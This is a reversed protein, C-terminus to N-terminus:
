SVEAADRRRFYVARADQLRDCVNDLVRRFNSLMGKRQQAAIEHIQHFTIQVDFPRGDRDWVSFHWGPATRMDEVSLGRRWNKKETRAPSSIVLQAGSACCTRALVCGASSTGGAAIVFRVTPATVNDVACNDHVAGPSSPFTPRAVLYSTRRYLKGIVSSVHALPAM